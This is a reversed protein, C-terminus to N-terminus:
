SMRLKESQASVGDDLAEDDAATGPQWPRVPYLPCKPATCNRVHDRAGPEGDGGMCEYCFANIAKRLSRPDAQAKEVPSLRKLLGLM